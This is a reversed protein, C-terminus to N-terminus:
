YWLKNSKSVLFTTTCLRSSCSLLYYFKQDLCQVNKAIFQAIVYENPRMWMHLSDRNQQSVSDTSNTILTTTTNSTANTTWAQHQPGVSNNHQRWFLGSVKRCEIGVNHSLSFFRNSILFGIQVLYTLNFNCLLSFKTNFSNVDINVCFAKLM